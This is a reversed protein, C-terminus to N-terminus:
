NAWLKQAQEEEWAFHKDNDGDPDYPYPNKEVVTTVTPEVSAAERLGLKAYAAAREQKNHEAMLADLQAIASAPMEMNKGGNSALRRFEHIADLYENAETISGFTPVNAVHTAYDTYAQQQAGVPKTSATLEAKRQHVAEETSRVHRNLIGRIHTAVPAEVLAADRKLATYLEMSLTLNLTKTTM